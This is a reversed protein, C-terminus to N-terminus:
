DSSEREYWAGGQTLYDLAGNLLLKYLDVSELIFSGTVAYNNKICYATNLLMYQAALFANNENLYKQDIQGAMALAIIMTVTSAVQATSNINNYADMKYEHLNYGEDNMCMPIPYEKLFNELEVTLTEDSRTAAYEKYKDM